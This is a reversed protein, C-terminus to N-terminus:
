VHRQKSAVRRGRRHAGHSRLRETTCTAYLVAPACDLQALAEPYDPDHRCLATPVSQTPLPIELRRLLGRPDEVKAAHLLQANPLALLGLLGQRTFSLRSIAPALAAILAARRLCTPCAMM